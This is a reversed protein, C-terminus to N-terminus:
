CLTQSACYNMIPDIIKEALEESSLPPEMKKAADQAVNLFDNKWRTLYRGTYYEDVEIDTLTKKIVSFLAHHVFREIRRCSQTPKGAIVVQNEDYNWYINSLYKM